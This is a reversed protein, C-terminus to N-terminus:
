AKNRCDKAYRMMVRYNVNDCDKCIDIHEVMYKVQRTRFFDLRYTNKCKVCEKHTQCM